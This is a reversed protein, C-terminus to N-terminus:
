SGRCSPKSAKCAHTQMDFCIRMSIRGSVQPVTMGKGMSWVVLLYSTVCMNVCAVRRCRLWIQRQAEPLLVRSCSKCICQLLQITNKFYGIHFVPLELKIYGAPCTYFARCAHPGYTICWDVGFV